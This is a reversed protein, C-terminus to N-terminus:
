VLGYQKIYKQVKDESLEEEEYVFSECIILLDDGSNISFRIEIFDIGMDLFSGKYLETNQYQMNMLYEKEKTGEEVSIDLINYGSGWFLCSQMSSFIVNKFTFSFTKKLYYNECTMVMQRKSYDYVYGDFVSDHVYIESAKDKNQFNIIM